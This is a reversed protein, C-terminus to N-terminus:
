NSPSITGPGLISGLDKEIREAVAKHLKGLVRTRETRLYYEPDTGSATAQKFLELYGLAKGGKSQYDVRLLLTMADPKASPAYEMPVVENMRTMFNALTQDHEGPRAADAWVVKAGPAGGGSRVIAKEGSPAKLIVKGVDEPDFANIKRERLTAEAGDLPRIVDAPLVYVKNTTPDLVYRDDGGYVRGGIVLQKEGSSFRVILKDKAEKLGYSEKREETLPGLDRLAKLPALREVLKDGEEGIPFEKTTTTPAPPPEDVSSSLAEPPQGEGAKAQPSEPPKPPKPPQTTKDVRGWLYSAGGDSRREVVTKKTQAASQTEHTISQIESPAGGWVVVNAKSPKASKDRTWTQYAVVLALVLLAGHIVPGRKM